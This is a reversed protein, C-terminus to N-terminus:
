EPTIWFHNPALMGDGANEEDNKDEGQSRNRGGVGFGRGCFGGGFL